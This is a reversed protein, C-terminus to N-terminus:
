AIPCSCLFHYIDYAHPALAQAPDPAGDALTLPPLASPVGMNASMLPEIFLIHRRDVKRIENAVRQYMPGLSEREFQQFLGEVGALLRRFVDM